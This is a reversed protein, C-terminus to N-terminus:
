CEVEKLRGEQYYGYKLVAKNLALLKEINVGRPIVCGSSLIYGGKQGAQIMCQRAENMIEDASCNIFSLTNVGGMLSVRDGVIDRVQAPNFNGLPDLPGICDLGTKVLDELIPLINGCIHCYIKVESCYHHLETCVDKMHPLIFERWLHPSIVSMNAVSDNLRLIRFGLDINFKGKEVTIAVGKEMTAHVLVPNDILDMLAKQYGCLDVYFALTVSGCDGILYIQDGTRELVQKQREWCGCQQYFVKDPIVIKEIDEKNKVLPEPPTWFHQFAIHYPNSLDLYRNDSLRTMLGGLIDIEGIITGKKDCEFFKDNKAIVKREPFHFQRAGDAKVLIAADVIVQLATQPNQIVEVLSIDMVQAALDVWIKPVSPVRDPVKGSIAKLIREKAKM